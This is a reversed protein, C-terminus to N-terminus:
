KELIYDFDFDLNFPNGELKIKIGEVQNNKVLCYHSEKPWAWLLESNSPVGCGLPRKEFKDFNTLPLKKM